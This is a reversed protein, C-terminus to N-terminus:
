GQSSRAPTWKIAYTLGVLPYPIVAILAYYIGEQRPKLIASLRHFEQNHRARSQGVAYWVDSEFAPPEVGEPFLVKIVLRRTPRNIDWAFYDYPVRREELGTVAYLGPPSKEVIEYRLGDGIQLPPSISVTLSMKGSSLETVEWALTRLPVFPALRKISILELNEGNRSAEPLLMFHSIGTVQTHARLDMERRFSASGDDLITCHAILDEYSMGYTQSNFVYAVEDRVEGLSTIEGPKAELQLMRREIAKDIQRTIQGGIVQAAFPFAAIILVIWVFLRARDSINPQALFDWIKVAGAVVAVIGVFFKIPPSNWLDQLKQPMGCDRAETRTVEVCCVFQREPFLTENCNM